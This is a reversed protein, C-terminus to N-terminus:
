SNIIKAQQRRKLMVGLGEGLRIHLPPTGLRTRPSTRRDRIAEATADIFARWTQKLRKVPHGLFIIEALPVAIIRLLLSLPLYFWPVLKFILRFESKLLLYNSTSPDVKKFASVAHWVVAEPVYKLKFGAHKARLCFDVEECYLFFREDLLGIENFVERKILLACGPLYDIDQSPCTEKEYQGLHWSLGTLMDFHGGASWIVDDPEVYYIIGAAIGAEPKNLLGTVLKSLWNRDAFADNNFLAILEGKAAKIGINNGAAFGLNKENLILRIQPIFGRLISISDDTSKNDVVIVEFNPYSQGLLSNLCQEIYLEGNYNLVIISVLPISCMM